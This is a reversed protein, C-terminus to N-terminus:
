HRQFTHIGAIKKFSKSVLMNVITATIDRPVQMFRLLANIIKALSIIVHRWEQIQGSEDFNSLFLIKENEEPRTRVDTGLPVKTAKWPKLIEIVRNKFIIWRM